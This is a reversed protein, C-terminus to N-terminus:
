HGFGLVLSVVPRIVQDVVFFIVGTLVVLALRAGHHDHDRPPDAM